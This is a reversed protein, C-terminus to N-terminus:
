SQTGGAPCQIQLFFFQCKKTVPVNGFTSFPIQSGSDMIQSEIEM